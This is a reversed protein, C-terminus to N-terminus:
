ADIKVLYEAYHKRNGTLEKAYCRSQEEKIAVTVPVLWEIIFRRVAQAEQVKNLKM